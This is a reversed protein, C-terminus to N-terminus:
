RYPNKGVLAGAHLSIACAYEDGGPVDELAAEVGDQWAAAAIARLLRANHASDADSMDYGLLEREARVLDIEGTETRPIDIPM